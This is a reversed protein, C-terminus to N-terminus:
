LGKQDKQLCRIGRGHLRHGTAGLMVTVKVGHAHGIFLATAAPGVPLNKDHTPGAVPLKPEVLHLDSLQANCIGLLAILRPYFKM